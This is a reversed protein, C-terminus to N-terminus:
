GRPQNASAVKTQVSLRERCAPCFQHSKTDIEEVATSSRMVCEWELCHVLGFTHGLEHVAEKLVRRDFLEKNAPFGYLREDLRCTSVVAITGDLQAEGFVYTLVPVFLDGSTVGLVKGDHGSFQKLLNAIIGTSYYQNRSVDFTDPFERPPDNLWSVPSHFVGALGNQLAHSRDAPLPLIPVLLISGM